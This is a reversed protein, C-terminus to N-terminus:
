PLSELQNGVWAAVRPRETNRGIMPSLDVCLIKEITWVKGYSIKTELSKHWM